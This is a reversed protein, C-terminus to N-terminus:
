WAVVSELLINIDLNRRPMGWWWVQRCFTYGQNGVQGHLQLSDVTTQEGPQHTLCALSDIRDEGRLILGKTTNM